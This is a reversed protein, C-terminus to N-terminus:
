IILFYCFQVPQEFIIPGDCIAIRGPLFKMFPREEPFVVHTADSFVSPKIKFISKLFSVYIYIHNEGVLKLFSISKDLKTNKCVSNQEIHFHQCELLRDPQSKNKFLSLSLVLHDMPRTKNLIITFINAIKNTLTLSFPWTPIPPQYLVQLLAQRDQLLCLLGYLITNLLCHIHVHQKTNKQAIM